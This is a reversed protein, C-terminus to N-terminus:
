NEFSHKFIIDNDEAEDAGLDYPGNINVTTLNDIGRPAFDIDNDDYTSLNEACLDIAVSDPTLHYDRNNRDVFGPDNVFVNTGSFSTSEHAMLCDIIHTGPNANMVDGDQDHVVSSRLILESSSDIGFVSTDTIFNDALTSHIIEVSASDIAGIVYEDSNGQNSNHNFVSSHIKNHSNNGVAFLVSGTKSQNEEFYTNSITVFAQQNHIAGGTGNGGGVGLTRNKTFLNCKVPDWCAQSLRAVTLSAFDNVYVGAGKPSLNELLLGAYIEVQTGIGTMYIGGGPEGGSVGTNSENHNVSVPNINDGICEQTCDQHGNLIVHGGLDVYIGGGEEDAINAVIGVSSFPTPNADGSYLSFQCGLTIYAGAGKGTTTNLTLGSDGSMVVEAASGSCFLGGGHTATNQTIQSDIIHLSVNGQSVNVGGGILGTALDNNQILMNKLTIDAHSNEILLASNNLGTLILNEIEIQYAQTDGSIRIAPEVAGFTVIIETQTTQIDNNAAACDVYGGRLKLSKEVISVTTNHNGNAAIRVEGIGTDIADQINQSTTNIDCAADSGVTLYTKDYFEDAGIDYPGLFDNISLVDYGQSQFDIDQSINTFTQNCYDIAPSSALLHYDGAASNIFEPDDALNNSGNLSSIEHGINCHSSIPGSGSSIIDGSNVDHIISAHLNVLTGVSIPSIGFVATEAFNDTITSHLVNMVNGGVVSLLYNDSYTGVGDNGNKVIVSGEIATTGGSSFAALGSNARNHEFYSHFVKVASDQSYIAGGLNASNEALLNCRDLNWCALGPHNISLSAADLVAIAGGGGAGGSTTNAILHGATITVDTGVGTAFIGGGNEDGPNSTNFDNNARNFNVSAPGSDNGFCAGSLDCLTSGYILVNAGNNAFIGGGDGDSVNAFIGQSMDATVDGSFSALFCGTSIYAGGGNFGSSNNNLRSNGDLIITATKNLGSFDNCYIGGGQNATNDFVASNNFLVTTNSSIVSLGGGTANNIGQSLWVNNLVVDSDTSELRISGGSTVGQGDGGIIKLNEFQTSNGLPLANINFVSGSIGIPRTIQTYDKPDDSQIDNEADTCNAFGGRLTLNIAANNISIIATYTENSAIRIEDAGSDIAAQIKNTGLRFDCDNGDGVTVANNGQSNYELSQHNSQSVALAQALRNQTSPNLELWNNAQALHTLM